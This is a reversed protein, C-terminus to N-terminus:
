FQEDALTKEVLKDKNQVMATISGFGEFDDRPEDDEEPKKQNKNGQQVLNQQKGAARKKNDVKMGALQKLPAKEMKDLNADIEEDISGMGGEAGENMQGAAILAAQQQAKILNKSHSVQFEALAREKEDM